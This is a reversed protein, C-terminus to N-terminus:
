LLASLALGIASPVLLVLLNNWRLVTAAVIALVFVIWSAPTTLSGRAM